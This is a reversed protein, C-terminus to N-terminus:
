RASPAEARDVFALLAALDLDGASEQQGALSTTVQRTGGPYLVVWASVSQEVLRTLRDCIVLLPVHARVAADLEDPAVELVHLHPRAARFARVLAQRYALPQNALLISQSSLDASLMLM